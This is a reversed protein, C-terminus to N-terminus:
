LDLDIKRVGNIRDAMAQAAKAMGKRFIPNDRLDQPDVDGFKEVVVKRLDELSTDDTLNWDPLEECFTRLNNILSDKFKGKPDELKKHIKAVLESLQNYISAIAESATAKLSKEIEQVIDALPGDKLDSTRAIQITSVKIQFKRLLEDGSPMQRGDLLSKLRKPMQQVIAPYDDTVWRVAETNYSSIAEGIEKDYEPKKKLPLIRTGGDLWPRTFRLWVSRVNNARTKLSDLKNPPIFNTVWFGADEDVGLDECVKDTQKPDRKTGNWRCVRLHILVAKQSLDYNSM